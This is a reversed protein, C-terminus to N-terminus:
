FFHWILKRRIQFQLTQARGSLETILKIESYFRHIQTVNLTILVGNSVRVQPDRM